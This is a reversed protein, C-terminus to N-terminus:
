SITRTVVTNLLRSPRMPTHTVPTSKVASLTMTSAWNFGGVSPRGRTHSTSPPSGCCGVALRSTAADVLASDAGHDLTRNVRSPLCPSICIMMGCGVFTADHEAPTKHDVGAQHRQRFHFVEIYDFLATRLVERTEWVRDGHLHILERKLTSWYAEMAASNLATM